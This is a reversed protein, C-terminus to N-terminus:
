RARIISFSLEREQHTSRRVVPVLPLCVIPRTDGTGVYKLTSGQILLNSESNSSAGISSAIGGNALDDVVLVPAIEEYFNEKTQVGDADKGFTNKDAQDQHTEGYKALITTSGTYSNNGTLEVAGGNRIEVSNSGTLQANPLTLTGSGGGLAYTGGAPTITGTYTLGTEPAAVSMGAAYSLPSTTFDLNASADSTALMLGGTSNPDLRQLFSTNTAVGTDVGVAGGYSKIKVGANSNLSGNNAYHFNGMRVLTEGSHYNNGSAVDIVLTGTGSKNIQRVAGSSNPDDDIEGTIITKGSGDFEFDRDTGSEADEWIYITGSITLTEGADLMNIIGCNNTQTIEGSLTLSNSDGEKSKITLWRALVIDYGLDRDGNVPILNYGTNLPGTVRLNGPSSNPDPGSNPDNPDLLDRADGLAFDNGVECNTRRLYTGGTWTNHQTIRVTNIPLQLGGSVYAGIHVDSDIAAGDSIVGDIVLTGQASNSSNLGLDVRGGGYVNALSVNGSITATIGDTITSFSAEIDAEPANPDADDPTDDNIYLGGSITLDSAGKMEVTEGMLSVNSSILNTSGAVSGTTIISRGSRIDRADAGYFDKWIALDNPDCDQDQDADGGEWDEDTDTLGVNRQWIMFDLGDVVQNSNWDANGLDETYDNRFQLTSGAITTTIGTTTSGINLGAVTVPSGLNVTLDSSLDVSLNALAISEMSNPDNPDATEDPYTAQDWNSSSQWSQSGTSGIWNYETIQASASASWIMCAASCCILAFVNYKRM